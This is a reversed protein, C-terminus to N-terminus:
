KIHPVQQSKLSVLASVSINYDFKLNIVLFNANQTIIFYNTKIRLILKKNVVTKVPSHAYGSSRWQVADTETDRDTRGDKKSINYLETLDVLSTKSIRKGGALAMM